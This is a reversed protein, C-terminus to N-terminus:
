QDYAVLQKAIERELYYNCPYSVMGLQGVPNIELLYYNGTSREKIMDISGTTLHLGSTLSKLKQELWDPLKFPTCRNPRKVNYNRFDVSTQKDLQSFIAMSYFRDSIFFIRLEFEKEIMAQFLSPFFPTDPLSEILADSVEETRISYGTNESRFSPVDGITKTIIRGHKQKFEALSKKSTTILTAPVHIGLEKAYGLVELKKLQVESPKTLWKKNRLRRWLENSLLSFERFIHNELRHGNKPTLQTEGLKESFFDDDIWRRFWCVDTRSLRDYYDEVGSNQLSVSEFFDAANVRLHAHKYHILWDIVDDTTPEFKRKSFITIM